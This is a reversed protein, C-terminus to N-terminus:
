QSQTHPNVQVSLQKGELQPRHDPKGFDQLAELMKDMVRQGEDVHAIQRKKYRVTVKVPKGQELFKRAQRVKTDIDHDGTGPSLRVEKRELKKQKNQKQKKAQQYRFKSNDIIQCVPPKANANVEVLDLGKEYALSKAETTSVVGLNQGDLVM